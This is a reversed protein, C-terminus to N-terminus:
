LMWKDNIKLDGYDGMWGSPIYHNLRSFCDTYIYFPFGGKIKMGKLTGEDQALLITSIAFLILISFLMYKRM